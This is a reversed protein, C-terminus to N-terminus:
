ELKWLNKKPKGGEYLRLSKADVREVQWCSHGDGWNECWTDGEVYWKSKMPKGNFVGTITGKKSGKTDASYTQSWPVGRVTRASITAGPFTALLQDQKMFEQAVALTPVILCILVGLALFAKPRPVFHVAKQM